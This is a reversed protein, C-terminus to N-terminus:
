NANPTRFNAQKGAQVSHQIISDSASRPTPNAVLVSSHVPRGHPKGAVYAKGPNSGGARPQSGMRCAQAGHGFRACVSCKHLFKCRVYSCSKPKNFAFCVGLSSARGWERDAGFGGAETGSFARANSAGLGGSMAAVTVWLELDMDAWSSAPDAARRLRFQEDYARWGLGPFQHSAARITEAYKLLEGARAPHKELYVAM